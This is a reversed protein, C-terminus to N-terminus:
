SGASIEDLLSALALQLQSSLYDLNAELRSPSQWRSAAPSQFRSSPLEREPLAEGGTTLSLLIQQLTADEREIRM